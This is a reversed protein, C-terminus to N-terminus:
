LWAVPDEDGFYDMMEEISDMENLDRMVSGGLGLEDAEQREYIDSAVYPNDKDVTSV